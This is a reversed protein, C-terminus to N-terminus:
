IKAKELRTVEELYIDEIEPKTENYMICISHDGYRAQQYEMQLIDVFPNEALWENAKDDASMGNGLQNNTTGFFIKFKVM